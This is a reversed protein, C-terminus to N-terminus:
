MNEKRVTFTTLKEEQKSFGNDDTSFLPCERNDKPERYFDIPDSARNVKPLCHSLGDHRRNQTICIYTKDRM